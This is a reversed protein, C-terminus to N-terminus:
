RLQDHHVKNTPIVSDSYLQRWYMATRILHSFVQLRCKWICERSQLNHHKSEFKMSTQEWPPLRYHCCQSQYLRYTMLRVLASQFKNVSTRLIHSFWTFQRVCYTISGQLSIPAIHQQVCNILARLWQNSQFQNSIIVLETTGKVLVHKKRVVYVSARLIAVMSLCTCPRYWDSVYASCRIM